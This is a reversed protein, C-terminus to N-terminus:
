RESSSISKESENWGPPAEELEQMRGLFCKWEMDCQNYIDQFYTTGSNYALYSLFHANNYDRESLAQADLYQFGHDRIRARMSDIIERKRELKEADSGDGSYLKELDLATRRMLDRFAIREQKIANLRVMRSGDTDRSQIYARSGEEEVFSALSENFSVSGPIWVTAHVAEHIVLRILGYNSYALQSSLLPDDFWGLTSYGAVDQVVVDLGQQELTRGHAEAEERSFFGLYPVSGVIPFWYTHAELALARAAVVNYAAADRSIRSFYRFSEGTNLFLESRAFSQVELVLELKKRTESDLDPDALVESIPRRNCLIDLQGSAANWLYFPSGTVCSSFSGLLLLSSLFLGAFGWFLWRLRKKAQIPSGNSLSNSRTGAVQGRREM